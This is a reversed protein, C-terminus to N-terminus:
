REGRAHVPTMATVAARQAGLEAAGSPRAM